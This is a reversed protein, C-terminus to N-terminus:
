GSRLKKRGKWMLMAEEVGGRGVDLDDADDDVATAVGLGDDSGNPSLKERPDGDETVELWRALEGNDRFALLSRYGDGYVLNWGRHPLGWNRHSM